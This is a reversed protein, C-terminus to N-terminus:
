KFIKSQNIIFCIKLKVKKSHHTHKCVRARAPQFIDQPFQNQGEVMHPGPIFNLKDDKIALVEGATSERSSGLTRKM